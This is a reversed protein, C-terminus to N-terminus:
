TRSPRVSTSNQALRPPIYMYDFTYTDVHCGLHFEFELVGYGPRGCSSRGAAETIAWCYEEEAM